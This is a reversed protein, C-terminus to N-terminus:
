LTGNQKEGQQLWLVGGTRHHSTHKALFSVYKHTSDAPLSSPNKLLRRLGFVAPVELPHFIIGQPNAVKWQKYLWLHLEPFM